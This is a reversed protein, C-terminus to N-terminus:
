ICAAIADRVSQITGLNSEACKKKAAASPASGGASKDLVAKCDSNMAGAAWGLATAVRAGCGGVTNLATRASSATALWTVLRSSDRSTAPSAGSAFFNSASTTGKYHTTAANNAGLWLKTYADASAVNTIATANNFFTEIRLGTVGAAAPDVIMIVNKSDTSRRFTVTFGRQSFALDATGLEESEGPEEASAIDAENDNLDNETAACGTTWLSAGLMVLTFPTALRNMISM